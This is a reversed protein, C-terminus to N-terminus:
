IDLTYGIGFVNKIIDPPLKKRLKKVLTKLSSIKADDYDYWLEFIIDESSFVKKVNSFLMVLLEKEKRTLFVEKEYYLLKERDQDWYCSEKIHVVRNTYTTYNIIENAAMMLAEKLEDRSIPKVLYKTLKLETASILIDIDSMATLMIAKATHDIKRIDRLFDIGNKGPLNIDILLIDPKEKKYIEYADEANSAEYFVDFFRKLFNIYNARTNDDDEVYLIKYKLKEKDM